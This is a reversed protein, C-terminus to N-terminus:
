HLLQIAHATDACRGALPYFRYVLPAHGRLDRPHATRIRFKTGRSLITGYYFVEYLYFITLYHYIGHWQSCLFLHSKCPFTQLLFYAMCTGFRGTQAFEANAPPVCVPVVGGLFVLCFCDAFSLEVHGLPIRFGLFAAYRLIAISSFRACKAFRDLCRRGLKTYCHKRLFAVVIRLVQTKRITTATRREYEEAARLHRLRHKKRNATESARSM